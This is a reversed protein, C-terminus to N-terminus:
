LKWKAGHEDEVEFKLFLAVIISVVARSVRM